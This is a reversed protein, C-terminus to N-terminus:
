KQIFGLCIENAGLAAAFIPLLPTKRMQYAARAIIDALTIYTFSHM